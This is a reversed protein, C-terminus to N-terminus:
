HESLSASRMDGFLGDIGYHSPNGRHTQVTVIARNGNSTDYVDSGRPTKQCYAGASPYVRHM